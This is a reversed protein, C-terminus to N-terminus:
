KLPGRGNSAKFYKMDIKVLNEYNKVWISLFIAVKVIPGIYQMSFSSSTLHVSIQYSYNMPKATQDIEFSRFLHFIFM